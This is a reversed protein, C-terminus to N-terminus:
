IRKFKRLKLKPHTKLLAEVSKKTVVGKKNTHVIVKGNSGYVHVRV